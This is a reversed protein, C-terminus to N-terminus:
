LDKEFEEVLSKFIQTTALELKTVGELGDSRTPGVNLVLVKKGGQLMHKVFRFSSYVTLSSGAVIMGDAKDCAEYCAEVVEKDVNAGFFVVDPKLVGEGCSGCAPLNMGSVDVSQLDADGDPRIEAESGENGEGEVVRELEGWLEVNEAKVVDHYKYRSTRDRCSLCIMDHGSGHLNIVDDMGAKQHLGDVNQTITTGIVGLEKLRAMAVHGENPEAKAFRDYGM